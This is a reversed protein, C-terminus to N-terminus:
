NDGLVAKEVARVLVDSGLLRSNSSDLHAYIARATREPIAFSAVRQAVSVLTFAFRNPTWVGGNREHQERELWVEKWQAFKVGDATMNRYMQEAQLRIDGTDGEKVVGKEESVEDEDEEESEYYYM